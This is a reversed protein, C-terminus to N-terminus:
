FLRTTILQMLKSWATGKRLSYLLLLFGSKKKKFRQQSKSIVVTYFFLSLSYCHHLGDYQHVSLVTVDYQPSILHVCLSPHFFFLHTVCPLLLDQATTGYPEGTPLAPNIELGGCSSLLGASSVETLGASKINKHKSFKVNRLERAIM